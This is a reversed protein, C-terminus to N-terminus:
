RVYDTRSGAQVESFGVIVYCHAVDVSVEFYIQRLERKALTQGCDVTDTL